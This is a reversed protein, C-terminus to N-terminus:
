LYEVTKVQHTSLGIGMSLDDNNRM